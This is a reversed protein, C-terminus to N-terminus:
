KINNVMPLWITGRSSPEPCEEFEGLDYEWPGDYGVLGYGALPAATIVVKGQTADAPTMSYAVGPTEAFEVSGYVGCGAIPRVTPRVPTVPTLYDGLDIEWEFTINPLFGYGPLPSAKVTVKGEIADPPSITFTVGATQTIFVRGEIGIGAPTFTPALPTAPILYVGLDLQWETQTEPAFTYGPLPIATVTVIGDIADPPTITFTVGTTPTIHVQGEIGIGAPSYAPPIPVVECSHWLGLDIPFIQIPALGAFAYGETATATLTYVGQWQGNTPAAPVITWIVSLTDAPVTISGWTNCTAIATYAPEQAIACEKRTGLDQEWEKTTINGTFIYGPQATATVKNLGTLGNGALTYVVQGTSAPIDISGNTGCTAIPHFLPPIPAIECPSWTGFNLPFVKTPALNAFAYNANATATLTYAGQWHGDAPAAPVISWTVSATNSPMTFVGWTNCVGPPIPTYTPASATACTKFAGLDQTWTKTTVNGAFVYGSSAHATVSNVGTVGNGTSTYSYGTGAPPIVVSGNVGCDAIANFTPAPPTVLTNTTVTIGGNQAVSPMNGTAINALIATHFTLPTYGERLGRFTILFLNGDASIGGSATASSVIIKGPITTNVSSFWGSPVIPGMSHSTYSVISTDWTIELDFSTPNPAGARTLTIAVTVNNGPEVHAQPLSLSTQQAQAQVNPPDVALLTASAFLLAVIVVVFRALL